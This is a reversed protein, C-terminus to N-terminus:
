GGLRWQLYIKYPTMRASVIWKYFHRIMKGSKISFSYKGCYGILSATVLLKWNCLGFYLLIGGDFLASRDALDYMYLKCRQFTYCVMSMPFSGVNSHINSPQTAQNKVVGSIMQCVCVLFIYLHWVAPWLMLSPDEWRAGSAEDAAVPIM